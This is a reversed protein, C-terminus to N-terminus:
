PLLDELAQRDPEDERGEAVAAEDLKQATEDLHNELLGVLLKALFGRKDAPLDMLARLALTTFLLRIGEVRDIPWIAHYLLTLAARTTKQGLRRPSPSDDSAQVHEMLASSFAIALTTPDTGSALLARVEDKLELITKASDAPPPSTM